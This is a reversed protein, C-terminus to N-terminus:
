KAELAAVKTELTEIKTIAEQLAATLLPVLKGHDLGQTSISGDERVADKEGAVAEPVVTQVEHAFFGDQEISTDYKWKFRIPRLQKLRTIGNNIDVDDQKLRYDSSTAYTTSTGTVQIYGSEGAPALFRQINYASNTYTAILVFNEGNTATLEVGQVSTSPQSTCGVRFRGTVSSGYSATELRKTNDYYLEVAGDGFCKINNEWSSGNNANQVRLESSASSSFLRWLDANDDGEDAYLKLLADGGEPGKVIIGNAETEFTKVNDYYLETAGNAIGRLYNEGGASRLRIDDGDLLFVGTINTLLSNTGDHKIILDDGTGLRIEQNDILDIKQGTGNFRIRGDFDTGVSSTAFSKTNDYYLEVAGDHIFKAFYDGFDKDMFYQNDAGTYLVGTNNVIKSDTGDHWVQLDEGSGWLSKISDGLNTNATSTIGGTVTIGASTTEFKKSNDYYLEVSGNLTGILYTEAGTVSRLRLDNSRILGTSGDSYIELDTGAGFEAKVSDGFQLAADLVEIHEAGVADDAIKAGTVADVALKDTNVALNQITATSVTNNSPAGINVESGIVVVFYDSGTTPANSFIVQNGNLAFGESPQSTGANPKQVVGNISILLQQANTPANSVTFSTRSNDFAESFTSIYFNGISQVEEWANNAANRVLMKDSGTDYYLDGAHDTGSPAGNSVRYRENFDNIDDSLQKVDGEKALLKHYTYTQSSGTSSVMLGVGAALTESYLSSPFGNITVTSSGVTRGTTSVGSGNVVVGGADSISIVVGSAPQTNPFAVETAVVELGGIPAIQAAVYDVVAGSTPIKADDDTITTQSARNECISNIETTTAGLATGSALISATGGQMGALTTLESDLPQKADIQTQIASTVGDVYNLETVTLTAGDLIAAETGTLDALSSATGSSMTALETLEADLPQKANLQNQISSTVGDVYGLETASLTNPIGDLVNLEASSVTAGDLIQIEAQTLAALASAANTQCSSLTTLDTASGQKANLQTQINSTVGDVYNIEASTATIGDLIEVESQTLDALANATTQAMTSLETLKADVAITIKGSSPSNDAITVPATGVVDGTLATAIKTDSRADIAASTAAKSNNSVWTDGSGLFAGLDPLTGTGSTLSAYKDDFEQLSFRIQNDANNLDTSTLTSGATYVVTADQFATVRELIVTGTVGANLVVNGGNPQEVTSSGSIQYTNTGSAANTYTTGNVKVTIDSEQIYGIPSGGSTTLAFTTTSSGPTYTRKAYAM